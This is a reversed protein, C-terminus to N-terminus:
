PSRARRYAISEPYVKIRCPLRWVFIAGVDPVAALTSAGNPRAAFVEIREGIVLARPPIEADRGYPLLWPPPIEVTGSATEVVLPELSVVHGELRQPGDTRPPLEAARRRLQRVRQSPRRLVIALVVGAIAALGCLSALLILLVAAISKLIGFVDPVTRLSM